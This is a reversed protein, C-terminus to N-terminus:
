RYSEFLVVVVWFGIGLVSVLIGISGCIMSRPSAARRGRRFGAIGLAIGVCSAVIGVVPIGFGVLGAAISYLSLVFGPQETFVPPPTAASEPGPEGPPM